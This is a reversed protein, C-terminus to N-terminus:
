EKQLRQRTQHTVCADSWLAASCVDYNRTWTITYQFLRPRPIFVGCKDRETDRVRDWDICYRPNTPRYKHQFAFLKAETDLIILRATDITFTTEYLSWGLAQEQSYRRWADGCGLWLCGFPKCDTGLSSPIRFPGLIQSALHKMKISAAVQPYVHDRGYNSWRVQDIQVDSQPYFRDLEQDAVDRLGEILEFMSGLYSEGRCGERITTHMNTDHFIRIMFFFSRVRDTDDGALGAEKYTRLLSKYTNKVKIVDPVNNHTIVCYLDHEHNVFVMEVPLSTDAPSVRVVANDPVLAPTQHTQPPAQAYANSRARSSQQPHPNTRQKSIVNGGGALKPLTM